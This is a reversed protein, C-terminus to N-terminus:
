HPKTKSKFSPMFRFIKRTKSGKLDTLVMIMLRGRFKKVEEFNLEIHRDIRSSKPLLVSDLKGKTITAGTCFSKLFYSCIENDFSSPNTITLSIISPFSDLYESPDSITDARSYTIEFKPKEYYFKSTKRNILYLLISIITTSIAAFAVWFLPKTTLQKIYEIM